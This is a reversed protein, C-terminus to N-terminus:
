HCDRWSLGALSDSALPINFGLLEGAKKVCIDMLERVRKVDRPHVDYQSEDHMDIVKWADLQEAELAEDLLIMAYKMVVAGAAQLLLNLAKHTMPRGKGDKRLWLKRGDIGILYGAEGDSKVKEILTSLAPLSELFTARLRAGDNRDGGVIQGIKEDGAGYLFAYIFTKAEDRNSLGALAQNYSHIDGELIQRIYEPDNVYHALMRLELGAGDYGVLVRRGAPVWTRHVKGKDDTRSFVIGIPNADWECYSSEFIARCHAGFLVYKAAKPINVVNKHRMRMTPTGITIAQAEIRGDDRVLKLVGQLLGRRHALTLRKKLVTGIEGGEFHKMSEETLKAGAPVKRKRLLLEKVQRKSMTGPKLGLKEMRLKGLNTEKLAKMYKEVTADQEAPTLPRKLQAHMTLDRFKWEDPRWGLSVLYEKIAETRGMDFPRWSVGCFPGSVEFEIGEQEFWNLVNAKLGGKKLFPESATCGKALEPPMQPVAIRDLANIRENLVHIYFGAKVKNVHVGTNAQKNIIEAVSLECMFAQKWPDIM